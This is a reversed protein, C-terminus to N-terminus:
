NKNERSEFYYAMVLGVTPGVVASYTLIADKLDIVLNSNGTWRISFVNYLPVGIIVLILIRFYYIVFKKAVEQRTDDDKDRSTVLNTNVQEQGAKESEIKAILDSSKNKATRTTAM